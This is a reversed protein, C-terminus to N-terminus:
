KNNCAMAWADCFEQAARHKDVTYIIMCTFLHLHDHMYIIFGSILCVKFYDRQPTHILCFHSHAHSQTHSHTHSQSQTHSHTNSRCMSQTDLCTNPSPTAWNSSHWVRPEFGVLRCMSQTDLCTNPSPTAWNSSHWVRPEFGVLLVVFQSYFMHKFRQRHAWYGLIRVCLFSWTYVNFNRYDM